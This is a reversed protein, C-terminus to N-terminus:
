QRVWREIRFDIYAERNTAMVEALTFRDRVDPSRLSVGCIGWAGGKQALADDTYIAQHARHFAGIGLHVIGTGVSRPDYAPRAVAPPVRDLTALSLITM